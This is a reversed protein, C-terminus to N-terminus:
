FPPLLVLHHPSVSRVTYLAPEFGEADVRVVGSDPRFIQWTGRVTPSNTSIREFGGDANFTVNGDAPIDSSWTGVLLDRIESDDPWKLAQETHQCASLVFILALLPIAFKMASIGSAQHRVFASLPAPGLAGSDLHCVGDPM